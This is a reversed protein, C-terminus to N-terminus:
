EACSRANSVKDMRWIGLLCRLNDMQVARIRSREKQKWLMIENGYMFVNVLLAEHLVRACELKLGRANILSRIAGPVRSGSAVKRSCEAWYRGSENM